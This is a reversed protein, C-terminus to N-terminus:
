IRKDQSFDIYIEENDIRAQGVKNDARLEPYLEQAKRRCRGISEISAIAGDEILSFLDSVYHLYPKFNHYKELYIGYLVLDSNRAEPYEELIAKVKPALNRVRNNTM